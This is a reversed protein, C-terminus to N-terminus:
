GTAAEHTEIISLQTSEKTEIISLQTSEKGCAEMLGKASPDDISDQAIDFAAQIQELTMIWVRTMDRMRRDVNLQNLFFDLHSKELTAVQQLRLCLRARV